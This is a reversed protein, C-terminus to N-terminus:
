RLLVGLLWGLFNSLVDRRTDEVSWQMNILKMDGRQALELKHVRYEGYEWFATLAALAAFSFLAPHAQGWDLLRGILSNSKDAEAAVRVSDYALLTAATATATHPLADLGFGGMRIEAWDGKYINFRPHSLIYGAALPAVYLVYDDNDRAMRIMIQEIENRPKRHPLILRLADPLLLSLSNTLLHPLWTTQMHYHRRNADATLAVALWLAYRSLDRTNM